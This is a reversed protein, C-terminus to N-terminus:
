APKSKKKHMKAKKKPEQYDCPLLCAGSTGACEMPGKMCVGPAGIKACVCGVWARAPTGSLMVVGALLGALILIKRM